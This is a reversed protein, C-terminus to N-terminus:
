DHEEVCYHKQAFLAHTRRTRATSHTRTQTTFEAHTNNLNLKIPEHLAVCLLRNTPIWRVRTSTTKSIGTHTSHPTHITYETRHGLMNVAHPAHM